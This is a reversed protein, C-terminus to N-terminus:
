RRTKRIAEGVPTLGRLDCRPAHAARFQGALAGTGFVAHVAASEGDLLRDTRSSWDSPPLLVYPGEDRPTPDLAVWRGKPLQGWVIEDGCRDCKPM